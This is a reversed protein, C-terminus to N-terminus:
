KVETERDGSNQKLSSVLEGCIQSSQRGLITQSKEETSRVTPRVIGLNMQRPTKHISEIICPDGVKKLLAVNQSKHARPVKSKM